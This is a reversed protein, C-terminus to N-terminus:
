STQSRPTRHLWWRIAHTSGLLLSGAVTLPTEYDHLPEVFAALVLLSLGTLVLSALIFRDMGPRSRFVVFLSVPLTSLVLAQHVWEEALLGLIPVLSLLPPLALCHLLCLSSLGVALVNARQAKLTQSQMQM